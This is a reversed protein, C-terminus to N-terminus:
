FHRYGAEALPIREGAADRVEVGTGEEIRGIRTIPTAHKAAFSAIEKGSEASATFLLEYDDGGTLVTSLFAAERALAAKAAASLPVRAAEIAARVGSQEAVHGLDAALGDSIDIAAHALGLLDGGIGLRPTPLRLRGLLHAADKAALFSLEGKGWALGLAADGITGTVYVDDGIKAGARRLAKGSPVEGLAAVTFTKPGESAVTDGGVLHVGFAAQDEALGQAFAAVWAEETDARFVVTLLYAKARAGMAALDSLNVRLLKRAVLAPPDDPFFHVGEVMTDTTAVIDCGAEPRFVAADDTLAFAGPFGKALPAFYRDILTFEDLLRRGNM